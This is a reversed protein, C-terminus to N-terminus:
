IVSRAVHVVYIPILIWDHALKAIKIISCRVLACIRLVRHFQNRQSDRQCNNNDNESAVTAQSTL